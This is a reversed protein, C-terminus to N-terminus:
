SQRNFEQVAPVQQFYTSTEELGDDDYDSVLEDLDADGAVDESDSSVNIVLQHNPDYPHGAERLVSHYHTKASSILVLYRDGYLKVHDPDVGPIRLM